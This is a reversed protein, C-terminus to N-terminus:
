PGAASLGRRATIYAARLIERTSEATVEGAIRAAVEGLAELTPATRLEDLWQRVRPAHTADVSAREPAQLRSLTERWM